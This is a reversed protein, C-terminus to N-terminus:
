IKYAIFKAMNTNTALILLLRPLLISGKTVHTHTFASSRRRDILNPNRGGRWPYMGTSMVDELPDLFVIFPIVVVCKIVRKRGLWHKYRDM